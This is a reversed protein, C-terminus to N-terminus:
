CSPITSAGMRSLHHEAFWVRHFGLAEAHLATVVADALGEPEGTGPAVTGLEIISVRVAPM